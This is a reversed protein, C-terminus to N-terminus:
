NSWASVYFSAIVYVEVIFYVNINMNYVHFVISHTNITFITNPLLTNVFNYGFLVKKSLAQFHQTPLGWNVEKCLFHRELGNPM